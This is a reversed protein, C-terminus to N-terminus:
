VNVFGSFLDLRRQIDYVVLARKWTKKCLAEPVENGTDVVLQMFGPGAEPSKRKTYVSFVTFHFLILCGRPPPSQRILDLLFDKM